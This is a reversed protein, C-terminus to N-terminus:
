WCPRSATAWASSSCLTSPLMCFCTEPACGRTRGRGGRQACRPWPSWLPQTLYCSSPWGTSWGGYEGGLGLYQAVPDAAVLLGLSFAFATLLLSWFATSFVRREGEGEEGAAYRLYSSEMGYTYLINLFVFAAYILSIVGYEAPDFVNTYFPVLLYNIFRALLTSLGYIATDSALQRIPSASM